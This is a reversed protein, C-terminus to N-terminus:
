KLIKSFPAPLNQREELIKQMKLEGCVLSDVLTIEEVLRGTGSVEVRAVELKKELKWVSCEIHMFANPSRLSPAM